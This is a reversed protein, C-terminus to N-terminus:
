KSMKSIQQVLRDIIDICAQNARPYDKGLREIAIDSHAYNENIITGTEASWWYSPEGKIELSM